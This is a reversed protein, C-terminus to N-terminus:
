EFDQKNLTSKITEDTSPHKKLLRVAPESAFKLSKDKRALVILGEHMKDFLSLNGHLLMSLKARIQTIYVVLMGMCLLFLLTFSTYILKRIVMFVSWEEQYMIPFQVFEVFLTTVICLIINSRPDCGVWIFINTILMMLVFSEFDGMDLPIMCQVLTSLLEYYILYRAVKRKRWIIVDILVGM